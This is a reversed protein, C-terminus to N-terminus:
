AHPESPGRLAEFHKSAASRYLADLMTMVALGDAPGGQYPAGTGIAALFEDWQDLDGLPNQQPTSPKTNM